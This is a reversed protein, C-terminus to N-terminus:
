KYGIRSNQFGQPKSIQTAELWWFTAKKPMLIHSKQSALIQLFEHQIASLVLFNSVTHHSIFSRLGEHINEYFNWQRKIM